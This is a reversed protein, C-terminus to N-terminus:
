QAVPVDRMRAMAAIANCATGFEATKDFFFDAGALDSAARCEPGSLNSLVVVTLQPTVRALTAILELGNNDALRLEIVAVEADCALIGALAAQAEEAEGVVAVGPMADLLAALRRRIAAAPDVLFVKLAATARNANM